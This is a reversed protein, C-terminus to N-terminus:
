REDNDLPFDTEVNGPLGPLGPLIQRVRLEAGDLLTTCHQLLMMGQDYLALSEELPIQEQELEDIVEQLRAFAQEFTLEDGSM